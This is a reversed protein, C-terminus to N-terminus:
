SVSFEFGEPLHDVLLRTGDDFEIGIEKERHRWVARVTKGKLLGSLKAAEAELEKDTRSM